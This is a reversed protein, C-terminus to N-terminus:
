ASLQFVDSELHLESRKPVPAVSPEDENRAVKLVADGNGIDCGRQLRREIGPGLGRRSKLLAGRRQFGALGGAVKREIGREARCGQRTGILPRVAAGIDNM